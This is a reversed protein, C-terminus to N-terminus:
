NTEDRSTVEQGDASLLGFGLVEASFHEANLRGPLYEEILEASGEDEYSGLESSGGEPNLGLLTTIYEALESETLHEGKTQLLDLLEGRDISPLGGTEDQMGLVEFARHLQSLSLGFAPRHNVYLKIFDGLDISDVYKGTDVYKSFKVENMMDEVEQESPYHGMARMVFSIESIPITVSVKRTDMTDVGQSRIQAYYFHNELEKFLEGDRGGELLGYFPILDEGGLKAGAELAIVNAEWMLTTADTGGTTFVYRGDNSCALDTVGSPHAILAMANHPNGDLPLIHLGVKDTTVYAMYRKDRVADRTPLVEMKQLPTGYTPALLTRRCMTTTTNYLKFKFQDNATLYFQEKTVPPYWTLCQPVASQEIRQTELIKLDDIGSNNLDYEVLARDEGLSLLRPMDSDLKIGFTVTRIPKYHARHKGLYTWPWDSNPSGAKYVTVCFNADGTAFWLSDHSFVCHTVADRSYRFPEPCEDELTIADLIRVSGNTFGIGMFNGRPDFAICRMMQGRSFKRSVVVSKEEYNWVQLLGSYSGIAILPETPHAALSHIAASHENLIMTVVSGDSVVDAVQATSTSIIYNRTVFSTAAITADSPYDSDEKAEPIFNPKFEFAVANLPGVNFDSCWNLLTLQQDYFRVHGNVDGSVVFRDTTTLVTIGREQLRVLKFAKKKPSPTTIPPGHVPRVNDWVVINGVSTGTLARTSDSCFISQSYHGVMRNFDQDTLEPAVFKIADGWEYFIVQSASNSVIQSSDDPNFIIYTQLDHRAPLEAYTTPSDGDVTWDWICLIQRQAASLSVIYKADPTMAMAAVGVEPHPDFITQVPTGTFSDWIIIMSGPGKDATAIWRKDQSACSCSINNSHGQLLKQRNNGYDYLVATNGCAYLVARRRSDTLNIAPVHKNIGFAWTLNLANPSIESNNPTVMGGVSPPRGDISQADEGVPSPGQPVADEDGIQHPLSDASVAPEEETNIQETEAGPKNTDEEEEPVVDATVRIGDDDDNYEENQAETAEETVRDGAEPNEENGQNEEQDTEKSEHNDEVIELKEDTMEIPTEDTIDKDPEVETPEGDGQKEEKEEDANQDSPAEEIEGSEDDNVAQGDSAVVEREAPVSLEEGQESM